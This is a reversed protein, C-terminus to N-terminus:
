IKKVKEIGKSEKFENIKISFFEHVLLSNDEDKYNVCSYGKKIYDLDDREAYIYDLDKEYYMVLFDAFRFMEVYNDENSYHIIQKFYDAYMGNIIRADKILKDDKDYYSLDEYEYLFPLLNRISGAIRCRRNGNSDIDLVRLNEDIDGLAVEIWSELEEISNIPKQRCEFEDYEKEIDEMTKM